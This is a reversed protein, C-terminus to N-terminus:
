VTNLLEPEYAALVASVQFSKPPRNPSSAVAGMALQTAHFKVPETPRASRRTESVPDSAAELVPPATNLPALAIEVDAVVVAHTALTSDPNLKLGIGDRVRRANPPTLKSLRTGPM